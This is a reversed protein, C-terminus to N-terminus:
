ATKNTSGVEHERRTGDASLGARLYTLVRSSPVQNVVNGRSDHYETVVGAVPDMHLQPGLTNDTSVTNSDATSATSAAASSYAATASAASTNVTSLTDSFSTAAADSTTQSAPVSSRLTSAGFLGSVGGVDAM